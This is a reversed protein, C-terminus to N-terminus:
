RSLLGEIVDIYTQLPKIGKIMGGNVYVIPVEQEGADLLEVRNADVRAQKEGSALCSSYTQTDLGLSAATNLLEQQSYATTGSQNWATFLAGAYEWYRGQDGACLAAAGALLSTDGYGNIPRVDFSVNGTDGYRELLAEEVNFFLYACNSCAFDSYIVIDVKSTPTPEHKGCGSSLIVSVLLLLSLGGLWLAKNSKM